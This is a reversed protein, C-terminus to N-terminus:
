GVGNSNSPILGKHREILAPLFWLVGVVGVVVFFLGWWM